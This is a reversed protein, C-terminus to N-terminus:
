LRTAWAILSSGFPLTCRGAVVAEWGNVLALIRDLTRGPRREIPLMGRGWRRSAFVLPFLVCQFHTYGDWRWGNRRLERQLMRVTYRCRHGAHEDMVSWLVHFAPASLLLRGGPRAVRRAERLLGDPDVHEIVDLAAVVDFQRDDLPTRCVDAQILTAAPAREHASSLLVRHADVAAVSDFRASWAPLMGGCGCGLELLHGGQPGVRDLLGLFLRRRSRVWFHDTAELALVRAAAAEDFRAPLNPAETMWIGNRRTRGEACEECAIWSDMVRVRRGACKACRWRIPSSM